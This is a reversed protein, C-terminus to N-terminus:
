GIIRGNRDIAVVDVYNSGQRGNGGFRVRYGGLDVNLDALVSKFRGRSAANGALKAAETVVRGAIYGELSTYGQKLDGGLAALDAQYRKVVPLALSNPRPVVQSMIISTRKDAMANILAQGAFSSSFYTGFYSSTSMRAVIKEVPGANTTFVVCDLKEALLADAEKDFSKNNRDLAVSTQLKVGVKELAISMATQNAASTDKLYVYGVRKFGFDKVYQMMQKYESDYGARVHYPTTLKDSRIGM